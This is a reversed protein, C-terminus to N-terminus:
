GMLNLVKGEKLLYGDEELLLYDGDETLYLSDIFVGEELTPLRDTNIIDHITRKLEDIEARLEDISDRFEQFIAQYAPVAYSLTEASTDIWVKSEDPEVFGVYVNGESREPQLSEWHINDIGGTLQFTQRESSVYCQMGEYRFEKPIADRQSVTECVLRDDLPLNTQVNFNSGLQIGM